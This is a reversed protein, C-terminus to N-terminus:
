CAGRVRRGIAEVLRAVEDVDLGERVRVVVGAAVIEFHRGVAAGALDVSVFDTTEGSAIRKQWYALRGRSIGTRRTFAAMSEGSAALEALAARAEEQTWQHWRRQSDRKSTRNRM